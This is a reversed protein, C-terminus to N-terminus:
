QWRCTSERRLSYEPCDFAVAASVDLGIRTWLAACAGRPEAPPAKAESESPDSRTCGAARCRAAPQPMQRGCRSQACTARPQSVTCTTAVCHSAYRKHQASASTGSPLLPPVSTPPPNIRNRHLHPGGPISEKATCLHTLSRSPGPASTPPPHVQDRHLPPRSSGLGTTLSSRLGLVCFRAYLPSSYWAACVCLLHM